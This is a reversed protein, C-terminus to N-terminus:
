RSGVRILEDYVRWAGSERRMGAEGFVAAGDANKGSFLVVARDGRMFGGIVAVTKMEAHVDKWRYALYDTLKGEREYKVMLTRREADVLGMLATKDRKSVAEHYARYVRAPDGGDAPLADGWTKSPSRVDFEVNFALSNDPAKFTLAGKIRGDASRVTSRVASSYCYGCADGPNFFYSLGLYRGDPDFELYVVKRQDDVLITDIAYERDYWEDM